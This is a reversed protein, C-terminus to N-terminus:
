LVTVAAFIETLVTLTDKESVYFGGLTKAERCSLHGGHPSETDWARKERRLTDINGCCPFLSQLIDWPTKMTKTSTVDTVEACMENDLVLWM